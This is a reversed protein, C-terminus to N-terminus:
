NEINKHRTEMMAIFDNRCVGGGREEVDAEAVMEKVEEESIEVGLEVFEKVFNKVTCLDGGNSIGDFAWSIEEYSEAERRLGRSFLNCM